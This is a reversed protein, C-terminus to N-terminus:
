APFRTKLLLRRAAKLNTASFPLFTTLWYAIVKLQKPNTLISNWYLERAAERDGRSMTLHGASTYLNSISKTYLNSLNEPNRSIAQEVVILKQRLANLISSTGTLGSAHRRYKVLPQDVFGIPYKASIRLWMDWDEVSKFAPEENFLGIEDFIEKRIVPTPSAIFNDVLLSCLIDGEYMCTSYSFLHPTQNPNNEFIFGDSYVWVLSSNQNFIEMQQELKSAVWLDDADLFAIYEGRAALIGVNRASSPGGNDKYIYKVKQQYKAVVESTKDTSGDDVVIVEIDRFSQNLVSDITEGIWPAANYAPIIVSVVPNNM